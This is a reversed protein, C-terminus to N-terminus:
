IREGRIDSSNPKTSQKTQQFHTTKKSKQIGRIKKQLGVNNFVSIFTKQIYFNAGREKRTDKLSVKRTAQPKSSTKGRQIQDMRLNLDEM